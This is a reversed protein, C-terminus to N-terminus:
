HRPSQRKRNIRRMRAVVELTMGAITVVAAAYKVSLPWLALNGAGLAIVGMGVLANGLSTEAFRGPSMKGVTLMVAVCLMAVGVGVSLWEMGHQSFSYSKSIGYALCLIPTPPIVWDLWDFQSRRPQTADGASM